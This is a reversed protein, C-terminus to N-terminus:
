VPQVDPGLTEAIRSIAWMVIVMLALTAILFLVLIIRM